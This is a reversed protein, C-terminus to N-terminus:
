AGTTVIDKVISAARHLEKVFTATREKHGGTLSVSLSNKDPSIFSWFGDTDQMLHVFDDVTMKGELSNTQAFIPPSPRGFFVMDSLFSPKPENAPWSYSLVEFLRQSGRGLLQSKMGANISKTAELLLGRLRVTDKNEALNAAADCFANVAPTARQMADPRGAHFVTGSTPEWSLMNRGFFLRIALQFTVDIVGKVPVRSRILFDTGFESLQERVYTSKSTAQKYKEHLASAHAELEPTMQLVVQELEVQFSRSGDLQADSQPTYTDMRNSIWDLLRTITTGDLIGHETLMGSRGNASVYVQLVKDFWRNVGDGIYGHRAIDEPTEPSGSDLCLAFMASDLVHLYDVNGPSSKSLTERIQAWSEREDTTFLTSLVDEGEVQAVIAEFTARLQQFSVDKGDGDQLMVKFVRGKRLVAIHDQADPATLRSAYSVVKDCDTQPVRTTNFLWSWGWACEPKGAIEMPDVEGADIARKFSITASTIIAAREVQSHRKGPNERQSVMISTWPAVPARRCLFRANTVIDTFWANTRDDAHKEYLDKIIQRAPSDPARMTKMDRHISELQDPGFLHQNSDLWYDLTEDLNPLPMVPLEKYAKCCNQGHWDPESVTSTGDTADDTLVADSSDSSVIPQSAELPHTIRQGIHHTDLDVVPGNTRNFKLIMRSVILSALAIMSPAGTLESIQLPTKFTHRVWNKLEISVLSDLGLAAIAIDPVDDGLFAEFKDLLAQKVIAEAEAVTEAEEVAQLITQKKGDGGKSSSRAELRMKSPVHDYLPDSLAWPGSSAEMKDRSFHMLHQVVTPDARADVNMAYELTALVEDFSVSGIMNTIDIGQDQVGAILESGEVAGVNVAVYKTIGRSAQTQSHAFAELFANGAAYNSQSASGVISAVSSLMVFFDTGEPSCFYDNMNITGQVKPKVSENWDDAEMYEWPHDRLVTASQIIGRVPPLSLKALQDAASRTSTEDAIDCQVIHLAGGLENIVKEFAVIAPQQAVSGTDRRTLAVIHGAGNEALLRGIRKGIDGLGGGIVYTGEQQLRLGPAKPRTAQVLTNENALLVLKGMHKREAMLSFAQEICSMDFTTVPYVPKLMGRDVMSLVEKIGRVVREPRHQHMYFIDVAAFTAQKDFKTMNLQGGGIIDAKGIECFTGFPALCDWSDRLLQGSLSNLVVDVGRGQTADFIQKRFHSSRSSFIYNDDLGYKQKILKKKTRSGVTVFVEAGMLQALQIAAQGVGGSGAHILVSQGTELRAVHYLCYWATVFILPISAADTFSVSDPIAVVNNSNVRVENGLPTVFLATVRDGPKHSSVNSGVATIVGAIEGTMQTAPPMQGLAILVDKFNVGYARAEIQVEDPGLPNLMEENDVFRITKLLGPVRIDFKIRRDRNIYSCPVTSADGSTNNRPNIRSNIHMSLHDDPLVRPILLKGNSISYENEACATGEPSLFSLMTVDALLGVISQAQGENISSHIPDQVDVTILRLTPNERRLVRAMGGAMKMLAAENGSEQSAHFSLWLVNGGRLLLQKVQQFTESSPSLLLPHEVSDIVVTIPSHESAAELKEMTCEIGRQKLGTTLAQGLAAQDADDSYGLLVEAKAKKAVHQPGGAISIASPLLRTVMLTRANNSSHNESFALDLGSFGCDKLFADWQSVSIHLEDIRGNESAAPHTPELLVLRGDSRMLKKIHEIATGRGTSTFSVMSAVILHYGHASLGQHVPDQSIDLTKFDIPAVWDKFKTRAQDVLEPLVDTYTYAVLSSRSHSEIAGMLSMTAGSPGNGVMLVDMNPSKHILSRMYAAIRAAHNDSLTGDNEGYVRSIPSSTPPAFDDQAMFDVDPKWDIRYTMKNNAEDDVDGEGVAKLRANNCTVVPRCTGDTMSQYAYFAYTSDRPTHQWHQLAVVIETGPSSDMDVAVSIQGMNTPMVPAMLGQRRFCVADLQCLCDFVSPHITHPQMSHGPVFQTIDPIVVKAMAYGDGVHIEKMGQFIEGYENGATKLDLYTESADLPIHCAAQIDRLWAQAAGKSLHGLGGDEEASAFGDAQSQATAGSKINVSDWSVLGSCNDVWSGKQSDYSIIRFHEWSSGTYQRSPSIILQLEVVQSEKSNDDDHIIVPNSITMNQVNVNTIRGATNRLQFLQKMAEIVMILYGAGPFIMFGEIVHDRLWPTNALSVHYRWRPEYPSSAPDFLGLLDHPPFPRMRNNKSLRSERWYTNSHDWPYSPLEPVVRPQVDNSGIDMRVSVGADFAKGVLTSVSKLASTSRVLCPSYNYKFSAGSALKFNSESLSQRLPGSLAAHPGVEILMNIGSSHVNSLHQAVLQSATSFKVQSVLNSVWYDAGFGSTKRVGTVSSFFAVEDRTETTILADLSTLYSPAVVEMHHSHYASDVKIRRNFVSAEVLAVQLEELAAVDGSITTSEPSNVCAVTIKGFSSDIKKIREGIADPGEGVALMGGPSSNLTKAKASCIGRMYSVQMAAERSLAGAAYAAAIEGSSHGCVAEPQIGYANALLDVMAIQVATTAPQAFRAEGLRSSEEDRSLEEILDWECGLAEMANNCHSISSSFEIAQSSTLLERGMAFWQAGQGTFIFALGVDRSSKVRQLSVDGLAAQLGQIDSAVVSCRWPLKSRRKNLTYALDVFSVSQSGESQLWQRTNDILKKLSSESNASLVIPRMDSSQDRHPQSDLDYGQLIVHANTGGYGFSNVSVRRPETHNEPALPMLELPVKIGKKELDLGPKPNVFNLQPPIQNKKLVMIAKIASAVGSAAELHGINTKISGVPLDTTRGAERGFVRAISGVEANDGAVTGTGHSEVFLTELPDLGARSYVSRALAEQAHSNPLFIGSTKGDHGVGSELLVAHVYDGDAVARDLRKLVLVGMGEGRAYGAGRDDFTYSRGDKNTLQSMVLSQDPTLLLQSAGALAITAEDARLTQCAQHLAVLGGSCGTDLTNSSGKLDLVYSIRNALIAEGAGIIHTMSVQSLDRYGMRDYDRAFMAMHVSTDSGRLEEIPLGANELAEYTVELLFRQQPDMSAADTGPINFFRADFASVDGDLFYAHSFNTADRTDPNENYFSKWDWRDKPVEKRGDRGEALLSWLGEPSDVGGPLRCAMGVVAIRNEQKSM